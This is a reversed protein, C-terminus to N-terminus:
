LLHLIRAGVQSIRKLIRKTKPTKKTNKRLMRKHNLTKTSGDINPNVMM